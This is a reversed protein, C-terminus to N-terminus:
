SNASDQTKLLCDSGGNRQSGGRSGSYIQVGLAPVGKGSTVTDIQRLEKVLTLEFVKPYEGQGGSDTEPVSV